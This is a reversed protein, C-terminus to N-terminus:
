SSTGTRWPRNAPIRELSATRLQGGAGPRRGTPSPQAIL